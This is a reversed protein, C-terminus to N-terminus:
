YDMWHAYGQWGIDKYKKQPNSPIELPKQPLHSLKDACYAIWNEFNKLGLKKVFDRSKEFPWFERQSNMKSIEAGLFISWEFNEYSQDPKKPMRPPFQPLHPMEGSIYKRWDGSSKLKLPQVFAKAEKYSLYRKAKNQNSISGTGLFDGWGVWKQGYDKRRYTKDPCAAIDSPLLPLHSFRGKVYLPWDEKRELKLSHAFAQAEEYSRYKRLRPATVDSGLFDGRNTWGKDKYASWPARPIDDPLQPLHPMQGQIYREWQAESALGLARVWERAKSFPRWSRSLQIADRLKQFTNINCAGSTYTLLFDLPNGIRVIDFDISGVSLGQLKMTKRAFMGLIQWSIEEKRESLGEKELQNYILQQHEASTMSENGDVRAQLLRTGINTLLVNQQAADPMVMGLWDHAMAGSSETKHDQQQTEKYKDNKPAKIKVPDFINELILSAYIAKLYDNLNDRFLAANSQDLSFPLLQIVEAHKKGEADRLVRGMMQVIDVLSSRSGVIICRDAWIWDAGEKFMNLAVIADLAERNRKMDPHAIFSKRQSRRQRHNDVLDLIKFPNEKGGLVILSNDERIKEGGHIRQYTDVIGRVERQKGQSHTSNPHPIYIIDKGKRQKLLLEIGSLYNHGCLLFDFSFSELHNMSALYKDYPLLYPKFTQKMEETLLGLRDGRFFSATTLGIQINCDTQALLYEVVKGIGNNEVMSPSEESSTNMLHHAEDIWLLLRNLLDLRGEKQLKRYARLLTMHSCLLVRDQLDSHSTELWDIFFAVKSGNSVDEVCLNNKIRWDIKAENPLKIRACVFGPAIVMQPVCIICRLSADQTLKYASLSCMMWSKGSGMPANLIMRPSDKLVGFAEIQWGRLSLYGDDNVCIEAGGTREWEMHLAHHRIGQGDM